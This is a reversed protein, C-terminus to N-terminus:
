KFSVNVYFINGKEKFIGVSIEAGKLYGLIKCTIM